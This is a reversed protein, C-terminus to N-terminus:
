FPQAHRSVKLDIKQNQMHKIANIMKLQTGRIIPKCM